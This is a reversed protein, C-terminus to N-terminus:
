PGRSLVQTPTPFLHSSANYRPPVFLRLGGFPNQTPIAISTNLANYGPPLSPNPRLPLPARIPAQTIVVNRTPVITYQPVM